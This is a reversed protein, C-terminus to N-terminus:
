MGLILIANDTLWIDILFIFEVFFFLNLFVFVPNQTWELYMYLNHICM